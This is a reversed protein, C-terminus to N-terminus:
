LPNGELRAAVLAPRREGEFDLIPPVMAELRRANERADFVIAATELTTDFEDVLDAYRRLDAATDILVKCLQRGVSM